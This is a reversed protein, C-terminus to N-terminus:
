SLLIHSPLKLMITTAEATQLTHDHFGGQPLPASKFDKRIQSTHPLSSPLVFHLKMQIHTGGAMSVSKLHSGDILVWGEGGINGRTPPIVQSLFSLQVEREHCVPRNVKSREISNCWKSIIPSKNILNQLENTIYNHTHHTSSIIYCVNTHNYKNRGGSHPYINYVKTHSHQVSKSM